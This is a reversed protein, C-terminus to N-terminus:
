LQQLWDTISQHKRLDLSSALSPEPWDLPQEQHESVPKSTIATDPIQLDVELESDLEPTWEDQEEDPALRDAEFEDAFNVIAEPEAQALLPQPSAEPQKISLDLISFDLIEQRDPQDLQPSSAVSIPQSSDPEAGRRRASRRALDPRRQLRADSRPTLLRLITFCGSACSVLIAGVTSIASIATMPHAASYTTPKSVAQIPFAPIPSSEPQSAASGTPHPQHATKLPAAANPNLITTVAAVAVGALIAWSILWVVILHERLFQLLLSMQRKIVLAKLLGKLWLQQLCIRALQTRSIRSSSRNSRSGKPRLAQSKGM